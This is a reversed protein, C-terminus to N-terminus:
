VTTNVAGGVVQKGDVACGILQGKAMRQLQQSSGVQLGVNGALQL